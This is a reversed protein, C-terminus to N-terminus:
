FPTGYKFKCRDWPQLYEYDAQNADWQAGLYRAPNAVIEAWTIQPFVVVDCHDCDWQGFVKYTPLWILIGEPGYAECTAVLDVAPVIYYGEDNSHPDEAQIPSGYSNVWIESIALEEYKKLTVSGAECQAADYQLQQGSKLYDIVEKPLDFDPM